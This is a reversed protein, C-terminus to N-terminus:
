LYTNKFDNFLMRNQIQNYQALLQYASQPVYDFKTRFDRIMGSLERVYFRAQELNNCRSPKEFNKETFRKFNMDLERTSM